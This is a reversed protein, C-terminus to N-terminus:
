RSAPIGYYVCAAMIPAVLAATWFMWAWSWHDRYFGYLSPAFNLAGEICTAYVGLTLALYRLPVNLLAFSITLPYFTGSSLGAIVLLVILLSYSHVFPLCASVTAFVVCGALLIRRAGLLAGLYVTLPGIFVTATNFATGIWAGEDIGIGLHGRLDALGLSLLRAALSSLGAGMVVAFVGLLPSHSLDAPLASRLGAIRERATIAHPALAPVNPM